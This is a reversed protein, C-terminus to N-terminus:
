NTMFNHRGKVSIQGLIVEIDAYKKHVRKNCRPKAYYNGEEASPIDKLLFILLFGCILLLSYYLKTNYPIKLQDKREMVWLISLMIVLLVLAIFIFAYNIKKM